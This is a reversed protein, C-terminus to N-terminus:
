IVIEEIDIGSSQDPAITNSTVGKDEYNTTGVSKLLKLSMRFGKDAGSSYEVSLIRYNTPKMLGSVAGALGCTVIQGPLFIGVGPGEVELEFASNMSEEVRNKVLESKSEGDRTPMSYTGGHVEGEPTDIGGKVGNGKNNADYVGDGVMPKEITSADLPSTSEKKKNPDIEKLDVGATQNPIQTHQLNSSLSDILFIKKNDDPLGWLLLSAVPKSSDQYEYSEIFMRNKTSAPLIRSDGFFPFMDLGKENCINRIFGMDGDMQTRNIKEQMVKKAKADKIIVEEFGHNSLIKNFVAEITIDKWKFNRSKTFTASYGMGFIPLTISINEGSINFEPLQFKYYYGRAKLSTNIGSYGVRVYIDPSNAGLGQGLIKSNLLKLADDRSPEIVIQGEAVAINNGRTGTFKYSVEKVHRQLITVAEIQKRNFDGFVKVVVESGTGIYVTM